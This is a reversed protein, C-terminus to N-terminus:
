DLSTPNHVKNDDLKMTSCLVQGLTESSNFLARKKEVEDKLKNMASDLTAGTTFVNTGDYGCVWYDGRKFYLGYGSCNCDTLILPVQIQEDITM